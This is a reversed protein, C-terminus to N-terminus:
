FDKFVMKKADFIMGMEEKIIICSCNPSTILLHLINGKQNIIHTMKSELTSIPYRKILNKNVDLNAALKTCLRIKRIMIELKQLFYCKHLSKNLFLNAHSSINSLVTNFISKLAKILSAVM